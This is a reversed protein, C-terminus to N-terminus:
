IFKLIIQHEFSELEPLSVYIKFNNDSGSFKKINTKSKAKILLPINNYNSIVKSTNEWHLIIRLNSDNLVNVEFDSKDSCLSTFNFGIRKIGDCEKPDFILTASNTELSTFIFNSSILEKEKGNLDTIFPRVSCGYIVCM